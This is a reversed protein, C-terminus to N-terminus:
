IKLLLLILHVTEVHFKGCVTFGFGIEQRHIIIEIMLGSNLMPVNSSSLTFLILNLLSNYLSIFDVISLIIFISLFSVM